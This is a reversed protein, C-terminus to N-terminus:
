TSDLFYYLCFCVFLLCFFGLSFLFRSVLWVSLSGWLSFLCYFCFCFAFKFLYFLFIIFFFFSLFLVFCFPFVCLFYIFLFILFTNFFKKFGSFIFLFYYFFYFLFLVFCFFILIKKPGRSDTDKVGCHAVALRRRGLLGELVKLYTELGATPVTTAAWVRVQGLEWTYKDGFDVAALTLHTDAAAVSITHESIGCICPKGLQDSPNLRWSTCSCPSIEM